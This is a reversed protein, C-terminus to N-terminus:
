MKAVQDLTTTPTCCAPNPTMVDRALKAMTRGGAMQSRESGFGDRVPILSCGPRYELPFRGIRVFRETSGVNRTVFLRRQHRNPHPDLLGHARKPSMFPRAKTSRCSYIRRLLAQGRLEGSM